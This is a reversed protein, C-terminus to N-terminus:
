VVIVVVVVVNVRARAIIMPPTAVQVGVVEFLVYSDFVDSISTAVGVVPLVNTDPGVFINDLVNADRLMSAVIHFSYSIRAHVIGVSLDDVVLVAATCMIETKGVFTIVSNLIGFPDPEPASKDRPVPERSVCSIDEGRMFKAVSGKLKDVISSLIDVSVWEWIGKVSAQGLLHLISPKVDIHVNGRRRAIWSCPHKLCM